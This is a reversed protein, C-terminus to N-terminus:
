DKTRLPCPCQPIWCIVVGATTSNVLNFCPKVSSSDIKVLALEESNPSEHLKSNAVDQFSPNGGRSDTVVGRALMSLQLIWAAAGYEEGHETGSRAM